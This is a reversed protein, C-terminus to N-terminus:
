LIAKLKELLLEFKTYGAAKNFHGANKLRVLDVGLKEAIKEGNEVCVLQDDESHFVFFNMSSHMIKNWDFPKEIFPLDVEYYKIPKVGASAAVFISAKVKIKIKELVRLLFAGGCSHGILITENNVYKEYNKFVKFWADPTQNEPTPFHPVIVRYNYKKLEKKLWPFWNEEPHGGTGHIIIAYKM